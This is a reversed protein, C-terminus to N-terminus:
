PAIVVRVEGPRVELRDIRHALEFPQGIKADPYYPLVFNQILFDLAAGGISLGSVEVRELDVTAQGGGSRIRATVRVSREGALLRSMLWGLPKGTSQRLKPFDVYASGTARGSTLELRPDRVGQPAVTQVEREAYAELERPRLTVVSGAPAQESQILDFKRRASRYDADADAWLLAAAM